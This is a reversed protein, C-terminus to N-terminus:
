ASAAHALHHDVVVLEANPFRQRLGLHFSTEPSQALPRAVAIHTVDSPTTRSQKLCFALSQEPLGAAHTHHALKQEEAAAALRGDKFLACAAESLIGGIGVVVM